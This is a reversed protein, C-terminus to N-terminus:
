TASNRAVSGALMTRSSTSISGRSKSTSGHHAQGDDAVDVDVQECPRDRDNRRGTRLPRDFPDVEAHATGCGDRTRRQCAQTRVGDDDAAHAPVGESADGEVLQLAVTDVGGM